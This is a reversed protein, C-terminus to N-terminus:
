RPVGFPARGELRALDIEARVRAMRADVAANRATILEARSSRLELQSIRGAEFGIRSLRYAEEAAAVASDAAHTRSASAALAATAALREARAEQKEAVLRAEAARQEARAAQIGGDNRDFLPLTFEIGLTLAHDGTARFRRMGIGASVEPFARRREVTVRRSASDLEAEALQVAPPEVMGSAPAPPARDLLSTGIAQPPPDLLAIAALRALAGDRGATAEDLAARAAEVESRAQIGRVSPARGQEVMASIGRADQETSALAENALQHRRAAAEAEAYVLALRGAAQWRAQERRLGATGAEAGAAEIRASRQGFLELPQRISLMSEANGSGSYPGSGYVNEREWAIAPNPAARAQQARAAAADHLAEAELVSPLAELRALLEEFSPATVHAAAAAMPPSASALVAVAWAAAMLPRGPLLSM